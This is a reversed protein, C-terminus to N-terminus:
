LYTSTDKNINLALDPAKTQINSCSPVSQASVDLTKQTSKKSSKRMEKDLVLSFFFAFVTCVSAIYFLGHWGIVPKLETALVSSTAAAIISESFQLRFIIIYYKPGYVKMTLASMVVFIGPFALYILCVWAFFMERGVFETCLLTSLFISFLATAMVLTKELGIKDAVLGVAIRGCVNFISSVSSVTALYHDDHIFTQGFTKYITYTYGFGMGFSLMLFWIIYFKRSTLAEKVTMSKEQIKIPIEKNKREMTQGDSGTKEVEEKLHKSKSSEIEPSEPPKFILCLGIIQLGVLCGGVLLFCSPVRDLLDDQSFYRDEGDQIDPSYNEPNIYETVVFNFIFSCLGYGTVIIGVVLGKNNPFWEMADKFALPYVLSHGVGYLVGFTGIVGLLSLKVSFYTLIVGLSSMFCALALFMKTSLYMELFALLSSLLAGAATHSSAIWLSEAYNTNTYVAKKRLYSTVYPTINGFLYTAGISVHLIFGGVVTLVGRVPLSKIRDRFSAM